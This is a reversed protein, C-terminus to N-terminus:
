LAHFAQEVLQLLVRPLHRHRYLQKSPPRFSPFVSPRFSLLPRFTPLRFSPLVLRDSASTRGDKRRKRGGTRGRVKGRMSETVKRPVPAARGVISRLTEPRAM